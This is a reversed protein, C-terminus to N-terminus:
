STPSTSRRSVRQRRDALAAAARLRRRERRRPASGHHGHAALDVVLGPRRQLRVDVAAAVANKVGDLTYATYGFRAIQKDEPDKLILWGATATYKVVKGDITVQHQTVSSAPM